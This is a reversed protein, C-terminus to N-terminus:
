YCLPKNTNNSHSKLGPVGVWHSKLGTVGVWHSELGTIGVWDAVLM